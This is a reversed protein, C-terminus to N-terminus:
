ARPLKAFIRLGMRYGDERERCFAVFCSFADVGEETSPLELILFSGSSVPTNSRIGFGHAGLDLIEVPFRSEGSIATGQKNPEIRFDNRREPLSVRRNERRMRSIENMIRDSAEFLPHVLARPIGGREAREIVQRLEEFLQFEDVIPMLDLTNDGPDIRNEM